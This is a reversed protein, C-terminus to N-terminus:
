RHMLPSAKPRGLSSSCLQDIDLLLDFISPETTVVVRAIWIVELLNWYQCSDRFNAVVIESSTQITRCTLHKCDIYLVHEPTRTM